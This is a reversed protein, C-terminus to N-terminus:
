GPLHDGRRSRRHLPQGLNGADARDGRARDQGLDASVHVPKGGGPVQDAPGLESGADLFRGPLLLALVGGPVAVAVQGPHPLAAAEAPRVSVNGPSRYRRMARRRPLLFATTATPRDTSTIM